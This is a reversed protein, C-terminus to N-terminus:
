DFWMALDLSASLHKRRFKLDDINKSGTELNLKTNSTTLNSHVQIYKHFRRSFKTADMYTELTFQTWPLAFEGEKTLERAMEFVILCLEEVLRIEHRNQQVFEVFNHTFDNDLDANFRLIRGSTFLYGAADEYLKTALTRALTKRAQTNPGTTRIHEVCEKALIYPSVAGVRGKISFSAM